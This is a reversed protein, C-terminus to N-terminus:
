RATVMHLDSMGSIRFCFCEATGQKKRNLASSKRDARLNLIQLLIHCPSYAPGTSLFPFNSRGFPVVQKQQGLIWNTLTELNQNEIEQKPPM